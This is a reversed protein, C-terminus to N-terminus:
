FQMVVPYSAKDMFNKDLQWTIQNTDSNFQLPMIISNGKRDVLNAPLIFMWGNNNKDNIILEGTEIQTIKLDASLKNIESSTNSRLATYNNDLEKMREALDSLRGNLVTTDTKLKSVEMELSEIKMKADEWGLSLSDKQALLANYKKPSTIVCSSLTSILALFFLSIFLHKM